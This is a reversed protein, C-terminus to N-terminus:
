NISPHERIITILFLIRTYEREPYCIFLYISVSVATTCMTTVYDAVSCIVEKYLDIVAESDHNCARRIRCALGRYTVVDTSTRRFIHM